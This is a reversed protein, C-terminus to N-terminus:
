QSEKDWAPVFDAPPEPSLNQAAVLERAVSLETAGPKQWAKRWVGFSVPQGPGVQQMGQEVVWALQRRLMVAHRAEDSDVPHLKSSLALALSYPVIADSREIMTRMLTRCDPLWPQGASSGDCWSQVGALYPMALASGVGVAMIVRVDEPRVKEWGALERTDPWDPPLPVREFASLLARMSSAFHTDFGQSAAARALMDVADPIAGPDERAPLNALWVVANDPELKQLQTLVKLRAQAWVEADQQGRVPPDFLVWFLLTPDKAADELTSDFLSQARTNLANVADDAAGSRVAMDALMLGAIWRERASSSAALTEIAADAFAIMARELRQELPLEVSNGPVSSADAAALDSPQAPTDAADAGLALFVALAAASLRCRQRLAFGSM